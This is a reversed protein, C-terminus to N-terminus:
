NWDMTFCGSTSGYTSCSTGDANCVDVAMTYYYYKTVSVGPHMLLVDPLHCSTPDGYSGECDGRGDGYAELWDVQEYSPVCSATDSALLTNTGGCNGQTSEYVSMKFKVMNNASSYEDIAFAAPWSMVLDEGADVYGVYSSAGCASDNYLAQAAGFKSGSALRGGSGFGLILRYDQSCQDWGIGCPWRHTLDVHTGWSTGGGLLTMAAMSELELSATAVAEAASESDSVQVCQETSDCVRPAAFANGAQLMLFLFVFGVGQIARRM